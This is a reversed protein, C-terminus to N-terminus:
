AENENAMEKERKRIKAFLNTKDPHEQLYDQKIQEHSVALMDILDTIDSQDSNYLLYSVQKLATYYSPLWGHKQIYLNCYFWVLLRLKELTLFSEYTILLRNKTGLISRKIRKRRQALSEEPKYKREM